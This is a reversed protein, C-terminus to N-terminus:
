WLNPHIMDNNHLVDYSAARDLCLSYQSSIQQKIMGNELNFFITFRIKSFNCILSVENIEIKKEISV